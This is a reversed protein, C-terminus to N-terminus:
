GSARRPRSQGRFAQAIATDAEADGWLRVPTMPGAAQRLQSRPSSSM